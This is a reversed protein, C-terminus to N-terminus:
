RSAGILIVVAEAASCVEWLVQWPGCPQPHQPIKHGSSLLSQTEGGRWVQLQRVIRHTTGQVVVGLTVACKLTGKGTLSPREMSFGAWVTQFLHSSSGRYLCSHLATHLSLTLQETMNLEKHGWPSYGELSRQGQSEGPLFVSTLQWEKKQPIKGVWPYLALLDCFILSIHCWGFFVSSKWCNIGFFHLYFFQRILASLIVTGFISLSSCPFVSFSNLSNLM